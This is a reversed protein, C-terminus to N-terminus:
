DIQQHVTIKVTNKSCLNYAAYHSNMCLHYTARTIDKNIGM